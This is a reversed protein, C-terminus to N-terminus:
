LLHIEVQDEVADYIKDVEEKFGQHIKTGTVSDSKFVELDAMIDNMEGPQTGRCSIILDYDDYFIYVQAGKVDFFETKPYGELKAGERAEKINKYAYKAFRAFMARKETEHKLEIM